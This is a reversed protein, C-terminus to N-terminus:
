ATARYIYDWVNGPVNVRHGAHLRARTWVYFARAHHHRVFDPTWENPLRRCERALKVHDCVAVRLRVTRPCGATCLTALTM